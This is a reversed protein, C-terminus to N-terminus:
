EEPDYVDDVAAISFTDTDECLTIGFKIKEYFSVTEDGKPGSMVCVEIDANEFGKIDNCNEDIIEKLQKVKM